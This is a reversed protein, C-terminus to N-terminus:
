LSKGKHGVPYFGEIDDENPWSDRVTVAEICALYGDETWLMFTIVGAPDSKPWGTVGNWLADHLEKSYPMPPLSTPVSITSYFGVGTYDRKGVSAAAFQQRAADMGDVPQSLIAEIVARELKSFEM